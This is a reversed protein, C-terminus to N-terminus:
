HVHIQAPADGALLIGRFDAALDDDLAARAEQAHEPPAVARTPAGVLLPQDIQRHEAVANRLVDKGRDIVFEARLGVLEGLFVGRHLRKDLLAGLAKHQAAAHPDQLFQKGVGGGGAAVAIHAEGTRGAAALRGPQGMEALMSCEVSM